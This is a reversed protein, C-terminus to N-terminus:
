GSPGKLAGVLAKAVEVAGYGGVTVFLLLGCFLATLWWSNRRWALYGTGGLVIVEIGILVSRIALNDYLPIHVMEQVLWLWAWPFIFPVSLRDGWTEQFEWVLSMGIAVHGVVCLSIVARPWTLRRRRPDNGGPCLAAHNLM